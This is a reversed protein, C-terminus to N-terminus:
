SYFHNISYHNVTKPETTFFFDVHSKDTYLQGVFLSNIRSLDSMLASRNSNNFAKLKRWSDTMARFFDGKFMQSYFLCKYTYGM